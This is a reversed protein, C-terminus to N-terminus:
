PSIEAGLGLRGRAQDRCRKVGATINKSSIKKCYSKVVANKSFRIGIFLM